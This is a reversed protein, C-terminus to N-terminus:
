RTHPRPRVPPLVYLCFGNHLLLCPSCVTEFTLSYVLIISIIISLQARLQKNLKLMFNMLPKDNPYISISKYPM